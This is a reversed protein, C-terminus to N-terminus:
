IISSDNNELEKSSTKQIYNKKEIDKENIREQNDNDKKGWIEKM